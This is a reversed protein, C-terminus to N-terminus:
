EKDTSGRQQPLQNFKEQLYAVRQPSKDLDADRSVIIEYEGTVENLSSLSFDATEFSRSM